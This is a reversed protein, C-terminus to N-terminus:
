KKHKAAQHAKLSAQQTFSDGCHCSYPREGTHIRMHVKLGSKRTFMKYCVGCDFQNKMEGSSHARRVHLNLAETGSYVRSCRGCQTTKPVNHLSTEHYDLRAKTLFKELCITCQHKYETPDTHKKSRKFHQKLAEMSTFSTDCEVCYSEKDIHVSRIHKQLLSKFIFSRKCSDCSFRKKADHRTTHVRLTEKSKFTRGCEHCTFHGSESHTRAHRQMVTRKNTTFNCNNCKYDPTYATHDLLYHEIIHQRSLRIINCVKCKYKTTHSKMHGRLSVASPCYQTCIDCKFTGNKPSHKEMHGLLVDEFNFYKVCQECKYPAEKYKENTQKNTSMEELVQEKTLKIVTYENTERVMRSSFGAPIADKKSKKRNKYLKIKSKNNVPEHTKTGNSSPDIFDTIDNQFVLIEESLTQSLPKQDDDFDECGDNALFTLPMDDEDDSNEAKISVFDLSDSKIESTSLSYVREIAPIVQHLSQLYEQALQCQKIFKAVKGLLHHCLSCLLLKNDYETKLLLRKFLNQELLNMPKLNNACQLCTHCFSTINETM